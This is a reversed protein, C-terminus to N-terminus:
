NLIVGHALATAHVAELRQGVLEDQQMTIRVFVGNDPAAFVGELGAQAEQIFTAAGDLEPQFERMLTGLHEALLANEQQKTQPVHAEVLVGPIAFGAYM